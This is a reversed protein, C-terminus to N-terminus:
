NTSPIKVISHAQGNGLITPPSIEQGKDMIYVAAIKSDEAKGVFIYKDEGVEIVDNKFNYSITNAYISDYATIEQRPPM